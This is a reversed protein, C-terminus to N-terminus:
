IYTDLESNLTGGTSITGTEEPVESYDGFHITGHHQQGAFHRQQGGAFNQAFGGEQGPTFQQELVEQVVVNHQRLSQSLETISSGLLKAVQASSTIISLMIKSDSEVMKVTIEGLGEPKLKVVFENKGIRLSNAIGQKVQSLVDAQDPESNELGKTGHAPSFRGADVQQQLQDIDIPFAEESDRAGPQSGLQKKADLLASFSLLEEQGQMNGSDTTMGQETSIVTSKVQVQQLLEEPAETRVAQTFKETPVGLLGQSDQILNPMAQSLAQTTQFNTAAADNPVQPFALAEPTGGLMLEAMIQSAFETGEKENKQMNQGLLLKMAASDMIGGQLPFAEGARQQLISLFADSGSAQQGHRNEGLGTMPASGASSVTQVAEM